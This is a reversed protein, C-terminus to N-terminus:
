VTCDLAEAYPTTGTDTPDPLEVAHNKPMGSLTDIAKMTTARFARPAPSGEGSVGATTETASRGLGGRPTCATVCGLLLAQGLPVAGTATDQSGGTNVPPVNTVMVWYVRNRAPLLPPERAGMVEVTESETVYQATVFTATANVTVAVFLQPRDLSKETSLLAMIGNCPTGGAGTTVLTTM